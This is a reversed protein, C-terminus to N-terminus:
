LWRGLKRIFMMKVCQILVCCFALGVVLWPFYMWSLPVLGLM